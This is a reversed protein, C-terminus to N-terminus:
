ANISSEKQASHPLAAALGSAKKVKSIGVSSGLNSPKIFCPLGLKKIIEKKVRGMNKKIESRTYRLFKVQPLGYAKFIIKTSFKDMAAASALVGCGVYPIGSVEMMGQFTGDEGYPGHLVPFVIDLPQFKQGGSSTILAVGRKAPAGHNMVQTLNKTSGNKLLLLANKGTLWAGTKTIGIPIVEYKKPNLARMVSQASVLSVEHEGSRGGFIVGVRLKKM